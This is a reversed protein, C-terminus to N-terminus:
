YQDNIFDTLAQMDRAKLMREKETHVLQCLQAFTEIVQEKESGFWNHVVGTKNDVHLHVYTGGFADTEFGISTWGYDAYERVDIMTHEQKALMKCACVFSFIDTFAKMYM